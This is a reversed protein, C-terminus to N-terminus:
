CRVIVAMRHLRAMVRPSYIAIVLAPFQLTTAPARTIAHLCVSTNPTVMVGLHIGALKILMTGTASPVNRANKPSLFLGEIQVDSANYISSTLMLTYRSPTLVRIAHRTGM